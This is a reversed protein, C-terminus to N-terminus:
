NKINVIFMTIVRCATDNMCADMCYAFVNFVASFCYQLLITV